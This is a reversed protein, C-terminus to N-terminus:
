KISKNQIHIDYLIRYAALYFLFYKKDLKSKDPHTLLVKRKAIKLDKETFLYPINFLKIIEDLEYNEINLDISM